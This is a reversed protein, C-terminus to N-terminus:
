KTRRKRSKFDKLWFHQTDDNLEVSVMEVLQEKTFRKRIWEEVGLYPHEVM